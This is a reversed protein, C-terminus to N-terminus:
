GHAAEVRDRAWEQFSEALLHAAKLKQENTGGVVATMLGEFTVGADMVLLADFNLVRDPPTVACAVDGMWDSVKAPNRSMAEALDPTDDDEPDPPTANDYAFQGSQMAFRARHEAALADHM